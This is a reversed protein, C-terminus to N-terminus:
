VPFRLNEIGSETCTVDIGGRVNYITRVTINSHGLLAMLDNYIRKTVGEQYIGVNRFSVFYYKLAKLELAKNTTPFYTIKVKAIDPLGSFPCVASFEPTEIEIKQNIAGEFKFTLLEESKIKEEGDFNLKKGEAVQGVKESVKNPKRGRKKGTTSTVSKKM